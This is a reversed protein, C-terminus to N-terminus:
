LSVLFIGAFFLALAIFDSKKIKEKLFIYELIVLFIISFSGIPQIVSLREYKLALIFLFFSPISLLYGAIWKYSRLVDKWKKVKKLGTKQLFIGLASIIASLLALIISIM